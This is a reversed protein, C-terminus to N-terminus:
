TVNIMMNFTNQTHMYAHERTYPFRLTTTLARSTHISAQTQYETDVKIVEQRIYQTLTECKFVTNVLEAPRAPRSARPVRERESGTEVVRYNCVPRQAWQSKHPHQSRVALRIGDGWGGSTTNKNRPIPNLVM